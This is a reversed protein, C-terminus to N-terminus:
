KPTNACGKKCFSRNGGPSKVSIGIRLSLSEKWGRLFPFCMKKTIDIDESMDTTHSKATKFHEIMFSLVSGIVGKLAASWLLRQLQVFKGLDKFSLGM